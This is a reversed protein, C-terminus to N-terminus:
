SVIREVGDYPIPSFINCQWRVMTVHSISLSFKDLIVFVVDEHEDCRERYQLAKRARYILM